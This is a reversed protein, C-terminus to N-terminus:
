LAVEVPFRVHFKLFAQGIHWISEELPNVVGFGGLEQPVYM